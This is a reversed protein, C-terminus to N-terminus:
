ISCHIESFHNHVSLSPLAFAKSEYVHGIIRLGALSNLCQIVSGDPSLFHSDFFRVFLVSTTAATAIIATATAPTVTTAAATPIAGAAATATTTVIAAAATIAGATTAAVTTTPITTTIAATPITAASVATTIATAITTTISTITATVTTGVAVSTELVNRINIYQISESSRLRGSAEWMSDKTQGMVKNTMFILTWLTDLPIWRNESKLLM